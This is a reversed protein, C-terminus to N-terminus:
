GAVVAKWHGVEVVFLESHFPEASLVLRYKGNEEGVAAAPGAAAAAVAVVPPYKEQM